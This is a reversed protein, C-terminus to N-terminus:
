STSRSWSRTSPQDRHGDLLVPDRAERVGGQAGRLGAGPALRRRRGRPARARGAPHRPGRLDEEDRRPRRGLLQLPGATPPSYLVLEDLNLGSLDPGWTPMPKREFIELSKLRKEAMWDPEGKIKSLESIVERSIGKRAILQGQDDEVIPSPKAIRDVTAMHPGRPHPAAFGTSRPLFQISPALPIRTARFVAPGRDSPHRNHAHVRQRSAPPRLPDCCCEGQRDCYGSGKSRAPATRRTRARRRLAGDGDRLAVEVDGGGCHERASRDRQPDVVLAGVLVLQDDHRARDAESGRRASPKVTSSSATSADSGPDSSGPSGPAM